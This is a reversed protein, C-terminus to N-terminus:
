GSPMACELDTLYELELDEVEDTLLTEHQLLERHRRIEQVEDETSYIMANRQSQTLRGKEGSIMTKDIRSKFIEYVINSARQEDIRFKISLPPM